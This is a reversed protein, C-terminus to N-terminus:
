PAMGKHDVWEVIQIKSLISSLHTLPSNLTAARHTLIRAPTTARSLRARTSTSSSAPPEEQARRNTRFLWQNSDQRHKSKSSTPIQVRIAGMIAQAIKNVMSLLHSTAPKRCPWTAQSKPIIHPAKWASCTTDITTGWSAVQPCSRHLSETM